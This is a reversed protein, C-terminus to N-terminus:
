VFTQKIYGLNIESAINKYFFNSPVSVAVSAGYLLEMLNENADVEGDVIPAEKALLLGDM